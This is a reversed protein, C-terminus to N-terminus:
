SLIVQLAQVSVLLLKALCGNIGSFLLEFLCSMSSSSIMVLLIVFICSIIIEDVFCHNNVIMINYQSNPSLYECFKIELSM